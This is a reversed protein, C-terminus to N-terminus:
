NSNFKHVNIKRSKNSLKTETEFFFFFCCHWLWTDKNKLKFIPNLFINLSKDWKM